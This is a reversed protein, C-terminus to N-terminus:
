RSSQRRTLPELMLAKPRRQQGRATGDAWKQVLNDSAFVREGSADCDDLRMSDAGDVDDDLVNDTWRM